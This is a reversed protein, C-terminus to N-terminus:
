GALLQVHLSRSRPGDFECFYIAQWTGLVLSSDRVPVLVSSGVLSAKIHADSNGEGHRYRPDSRPALAELKYLVDAVVDPDANEQITIGATTHPVYCLVCGDRVNSDRVLGQVRDTVDIMETRKATPVTLTRLM